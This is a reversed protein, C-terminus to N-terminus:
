CWEHWLHWLRARSLYRGGAHINGPGFVKKFVTEALDLGVVLGEVGIDLLAPDTTCNWLDKGRFHRPPTSFGHDYAKIISSSEALIM